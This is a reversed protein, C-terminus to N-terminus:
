KKDCVWIFCNYYGKVLPGCTVDFDSIVSSAILRNEWHGECDPYGLKGTGNEAFFTKIPRQAEKCGSVLALLVFFYIIKM